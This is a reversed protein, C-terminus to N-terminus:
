LFVQLQQISAVVLAEALHGRNDPKCNFRDSRLRAQVIKAPNIQVLVLTLM